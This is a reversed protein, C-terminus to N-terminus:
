RASSSRRHISLKEPIPSSVESQPRISEEMTQKKAEQQRNWHAIRRSLARYVEGYPIWIERDQIIAYIEEILQKKSGEVPLKGRNEIFAAYQDRAIRYIWEQQKRKLDGWAKNTQLLKGDVRIHNKV